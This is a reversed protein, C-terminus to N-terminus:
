RVRFFVVVAVVFVRLTDADVAAFALAVFAIVAFAIVADADAVVVVVVALLSVLPM